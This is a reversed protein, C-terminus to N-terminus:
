YGCIRKLKNIRALRKNCEIYEVKMWFPYIDKLEDRDIIYCEARKGDGAPVRSIEGKLWMEKLWDRLTKTNFMWIQNHNPFINFWLTSKSVSICSPINNCRYEFLINNSQFTDSKVEISKGNTFLIDWDSNKGTQYRDVIWNFRKTMYAGVIKEYEQGEKLDDKFNTKM